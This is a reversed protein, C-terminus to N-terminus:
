QAQEDSSSQLTFDDSHVADRQNMYETDAGSLAKQHHVPITFFFTTGNGHESEVWIRGGHREVV